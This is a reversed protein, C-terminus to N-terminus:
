EFMECIIADIGEEIKKLTNEYAELSKGYPDPIDSPFSFVKDKAGSYAGAIASAHGASIGIICDCEALLKPCLQVSFHEFNPIGYKELAARANESIPSGDAYLGASLAVADIAKEKAKKNFIAQAM